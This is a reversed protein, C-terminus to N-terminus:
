WLKRFDDWFKGKICSIPDYSSSNLFYSNSTDCICSSTMNVSNYNIPNLISGPKCTLCKNYGYGTCSNCNSHCGFYQTTLSLLGWFKNITNTFSLDTLLNIDQIFFELLHQKYYQNPAQNDYCNNVQLGKNDTFKTYKIQKTVYSIVDMTNYRISFPFNLTFDDETILEVRVKKMYFPLGVESIIVDIRSTPDLYSTNNM